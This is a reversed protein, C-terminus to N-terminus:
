FWRLAKGVTVAITILTGLGGFVWLLATLKADMNSFKRDLASLKENTLDIRDNTADLKVLVIEHNRDVRDSYSFYRRAHCCRM